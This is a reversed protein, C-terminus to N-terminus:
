WDKMANRIEQQDPQIYSMTTQINSHGLMKQLHPIPINKNAYYTAMGRRFQHLGSPLGLTNTISRTMREVWYVDLPLGNEQLFFNDYESNPRHILYEKMLPKVEKNIGIRRDKGGKGDVIIIEDSDWDIDRTKLNISESLRLGEYFLLSYYTEQLRYQYETPNSHRIYEMVSQLQSYKLTPKHTERVKVIPLVRLKTLTKELELLM